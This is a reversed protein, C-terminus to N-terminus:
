GASFEEARRQIGCLGLERATALSQERMAAARGTDERRGQRVLVRACELRTRALWVPAPLREEIHMAEEFHARAAELRGQTTALLGLYHDIPGTTAAGNTALLGAYSALGQYLIGARDADGLLFAVEALITAGFMWAFPLAFGSAALEDFFPRAEDLRGEECLTLCYAALPLPSRPERRMARSFFELTEALRGQDYRLWFLQIGFFSFADPQGSAQNLAFAEYALAESEVLRGQIRSLHSRGATAIFRLFPQGVDDAMQTSTAILTEAVELDGAMVATMFGWTPAWFALAPDGLQEAVEGLEATHARLAAVDLSTFIPVYGRVLADALTPLDGLRRAMDLGATALQLRRESETAFVLESALTVLLRARTTSDGPGLADLAAEVVRVREDDVENLLSFFARHNALAARALRDADGLDQALGAADLLTKRHDADGARRQAEGLSILLDCRLPEDADGESAALLDLAHRYYGLAEEFALGAGARDGARRAYDVARVVEGLSAAESFHRALESVHADADPRAELVEGIRRHLRLRRTSPIDEYLASRVLAHAFAYHEARGSTAAVLRAEEAEELSDLVADRNVDGVAALLGVDFERGIVAALSLVDNASPRLQSLRRGVIDRVGEPIGLEGLPRATIWRQERRIVAGTEALHRLLEGVFFPNGDTESHVAHAFALDEPELPHGAAAEIFATTEGEDLGKLSMREVDLERRLDALTQALPSGRPVDTDRYTAVVLLRNAVGSRMLHRLLLLTPKGAWHLDDLLLLVPASRSIGSLFDRVAELLRYRETEPEARLPEALGPVRSVLGPVLRTVEGGLPGLQDQLDAAPCAAVYGGLAEAFPQYPLGPEEECRGYLVVGGQPHVLHATEAMLRTKGIGPEGAVLVLTRGGTIAKKWAGTLRDLESRRGVFRFAAAREIGAPLPISLGVEPAWDVESAEVPAPLGKLELMGVVSFHYGAQSGVLLRVVQSVLIQGGAAAHCLRAAEAVPAGFCDGEEFSVDGSSIGLRADLRSDPPASQNHRDFARQIAVAADVADAAGAFTAMIGDGLGKVVLGQHLSVAEALLRNHIHRLNGAAAEGLRSWRETSAVLDTFLVTATSRGGGGAPTM